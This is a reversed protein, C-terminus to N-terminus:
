PTAETETVVPAPWGLARFAPAQWAEAIPADLTVAGGDLVLLRDALDDVLDLDHSVLLVARGARRAEDVFRDLHRRGLRDRALLPEDLIAVAPETAALCALGLLAQARASLAFPSVDAIDALDHAALVERGRARVAAGAMGRTDGAISFAIEDLVTLNFFMRRANQPLYGIRRARRAATWGGADEGEIRIRGSRVPELGILSRFLTSKGAGNRGVLGVVEGGAVELSVGGLVPRGDTRVLRTVLDEVVLLSAGPAARERRVPACRHPALLGADTWPDRLGMAVATPWSGAIRGRDLIHIRDIVPALSAADQDSALITPTEERAVALARRLRGRADPDLGTTPEDLVLLRPADILAAALVVMRREGGSLTLVRRGRLEEIELMAFLVALRARIAARDLGRNELPAAIVDEVELDWLQDDLNQFVIGVRTFLDARPISGIPTGDLDISGDAHSAHVLRPIVGAAAAVLTSKGAGGAGCVLAPVHDEVELALTDLVTKGSFAISLDRISLL